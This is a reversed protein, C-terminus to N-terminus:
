EYYLSMEFNNNENNNNQFINLNIYNPKKEEYFFNDYQYENSIYYDFDLIPILLPNMFNQTLHTSIKYKFDKKKDTYFLNQNSYIGNFSFLGKKIKIYKKQLKSINSYNTINYKYIYNKDWLYSVNPLKMEEKFEIKINDKNKQNMYFKLIEM